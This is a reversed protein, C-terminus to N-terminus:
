KNRREPKSRRRMIEKMITKKKTRMQEMESTKKKERM